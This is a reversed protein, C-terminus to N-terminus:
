PDACLLMDSLSVLKAECGAAYLMACDDRIAAVPRMANRLAQLLAISACRGRM